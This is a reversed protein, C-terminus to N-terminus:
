THALLKYVTGTSDKVTLTHTSAIAVGVAAANGLQLTKGSSIIVNTELDIEAGQLHVNGGGVNVIFDGGTVITFDGSTNINFIDGCDFTFAQNSLLHLDQGASITLNGSGDLNNIEFDGTTGNANITGVSTNQPDCIEISTIHATAAIVQLVIQGGLYLDVESSGLLLASDPTATANKQLYFILDTGRHNGSNAWNETAVSRIGATAYVNTGDYGGFLVQGVVDGSQVATPSANTGDLRNFFMGPIGGAQRIELIGNAADAANIGASVTLTGFDTNTPVNFSFASSPAISVVGTLLINGTITTPLSFVNGTLTINTGASYLLAPTKVFTINTVGLTIATNNNTWQTQAGLTGQEVIMTAAVIEAGTDADTSRVWAGSASVYIGNQKPDAQNKVLVRSASTLIGDITQEGSLTISATTAVIVPAKWSQAIVANGILINISQLLQDDIDADPTIGAADLVNAAEGILLSFANLYYNQNSAPLKDGSEYGNTIVGSDPPNNIGDPSFVSINKM